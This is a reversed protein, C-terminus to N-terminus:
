IFVFMDTCTSIIQQAGALGVCMWPLVTHELMKQWVCLDSGVLSMIAFLLYVNAPPGGQYVGLSFCLFCNSLGIQLTNWSKQQGDPDSCVLGMITFMLYDNAPTGGRAVGWLLFFLFIINQVYPFKQFFFQFDSPAEWVANKFFVVTNQVFNHQQLLFLNEQFSLGFKSPNQSNTSCEAEHVAYIVWEVCQTKQFFQFRIPGGLNRDVFVM